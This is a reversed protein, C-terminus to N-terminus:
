WSKKDGHEENWDYGAMYEAIEEETVGLVCEGNGTGAPWWHPYRERGYYSDASGRDYLSGHRNREFSPGLGKLTMAKLAVVTEKPMKKKMHEEYAGWYGEEWKLFLSLDTDYNYPNDMIHRHCKYDDYGSWYADVSM